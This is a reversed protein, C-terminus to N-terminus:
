PDASCVVMSRSEQCLVTLVGKSTSSLLGLLSSTLLAMLSRFLFAAPGSPMGGSAM